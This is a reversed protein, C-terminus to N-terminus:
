RTVKLVVPHLYSLTGALIVVPVFHWRMPPGDSVIVAALEILVSDLTAGQLFEQTFICFCSVESQLSSVFELFSANSQSIFSGTNNAQRHPPIAKDLTM